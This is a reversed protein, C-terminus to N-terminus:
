AVLVNPARHDIGLLMMFYEHLHRNEDFQRSRNREPVISERKIRILLGQRFVANAACSQKPSECWEFHDELACRMM